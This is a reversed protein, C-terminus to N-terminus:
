LKITKEKEGVHERLVSLVYSNLSRRHDLKALVKLKRKLDIEDKPLRLPINNNAM